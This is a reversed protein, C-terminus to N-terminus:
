IMQETACGPMDSLKHHIFLTHQEMHYTKLYIQITSLILSTMKDKITHKLRSSIEKLMSKLIWSHQLTIMKIKYM